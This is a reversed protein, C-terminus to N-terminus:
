PCLIINTHSNFFINRSKLSFKNNLRASTPLIGAGLITISISHKPKLTLGFTSMLKTCSIKSVQNYVFSLLDAMTTVIRRTAIRTMQKNSRGLIISSIPVGLSSSNLSALNSGALIGFRNNLRNLIGIFCSRMISSYDFVQGYFKIYRVSNNPINTLSSRPSM